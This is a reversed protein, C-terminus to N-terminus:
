GAGAPWGAAARDLAQEFAQADPIHFIEIRTPRFRVTSTGTSPAPDAVEDDPTVRRRKPVKGFKLREQRQWERFTGDDDLREGSLIVFGLGSGDEVAERMLEAARYMVAARELPKWDRWGGSKFAAVAAEVAADADSISAQALHAWPQGTAPNVMPVTEGDGLRM